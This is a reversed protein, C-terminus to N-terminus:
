DAEAGSLQMLDGDNYYHRYQEASREGNWKILLNDNGAHKGTIVGRKVKSKENDWVMVPISLARRTAAAIKKILEVRTPASVQSGNATNARFVGDEDGVTISYKNGRVKVEGAPIQAM